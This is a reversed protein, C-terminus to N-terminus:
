HFKLLVVEHRYERGDIKEPAIASVAAWEIASWYGAMVQNNYVVEAVGSIIPSLMDESQQPTISGDATGYLVFAHIALLHHDPIGGQSTFRKWESGAETVSVIPNLTGWDAVQHDYVKAAPKGSGEIAVALLLAFRKRLAARDAILM